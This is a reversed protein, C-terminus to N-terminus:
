KVFPRNKRLIQYIIFSTTVGLISGALTDALFHQSLYIRSYGVFLAIVFLAIGIKKSQYFLGLAATLAFITTTHGSPFSHSAHMKIGSVIPVRLSGSQIYHYPRMFDDFVFNKLLQALLSSFLFTLLLFIGKKRDIFFFLLSVLVAFIGDGLFTITSFIFDLLNNHYSNLSQHIEFKPVTITFIFLILWVFIFSIVYSKSSFSISNWYKM